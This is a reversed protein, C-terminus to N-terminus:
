LAKHICTNMHQLYEATEGKLTQNNKEPESNDILSKHDLKSQISVHFVVLVGPGSHGVM